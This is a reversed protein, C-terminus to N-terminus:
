TRRKWTDPHRHLHVIGIALIAEPRDRFFVGYPFKKMVARRIDRHIVPFAQPSERIRNMLADVSLVFRRGLGVAQDEYWDRAEELEDVALAEFVLPKM